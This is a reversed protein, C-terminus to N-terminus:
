AVAKLHRRQPRPYKVAKFKAVALDLVEDWTLYFDKNGGPPNHPTLGIRKAFVLPTENDYNYRPAVVM